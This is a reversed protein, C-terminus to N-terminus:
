RNKREKESQEIIEEPSMLTGDAKVLNKNREMWNLFQKYEYVYQISKSGAKEPEPKEKGFIDKGEGSDETPKERTAWYTNFAEVAQYYNVKPDNMMQIWNPTHNSSDTNKTEETQVLSSKAGNCSYLIVMSTCLMLLSKFPLM